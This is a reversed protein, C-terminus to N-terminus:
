VTKNALAKLIASRAGVVDGSFPATAGRLLYPTVALMGVALAASRDMGGAEDDFSLTSFVPVDM